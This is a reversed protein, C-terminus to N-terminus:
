AFTLDYLQYIDGLISYNYLMWRLSYQVEETGQLNVASSHCIHGERQHLKHAKGFIENKNNYTSKKTIVILIM